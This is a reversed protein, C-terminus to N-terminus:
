NNSDYEILRDKYTNREETPITYGTLADATEQRKKMIETLERKDNVHQDFQTYGTEIFQDDRSLKDALMEDLKHTELKLLEHHKVIVGLTIHLYMPVVMEIDIDLLVPRVCNAYERANKLISGDEKFKSYQRKISSLTRDNMAGATIAAGTRMDGLLINCWLCPHKGGQGSLGYISCLFLYDGFLFVKIRRGKWKRKKLKKLEPNLYVCIEKLIEHTDKAEVLAVAHTNERANPKEVNAIQICLKVSGKGHDGGLKVWIEDEPIGFEGHWTLKGNMHLDDLLDFVYAELDIVHGLWHDDHKRGNATDTVESIRTVQFKDKVLDKGFQNCKDKSAYEVNYANKHFRKVKALQEGSLNVYQQLAVTSATDVHIKVKRDNVIDSQIDKSQSKFNSLSQIKVDEPDNGGVLSSFAKM